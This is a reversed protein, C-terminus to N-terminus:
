KLLKNLAKRKIASIKHLVGEKNGWYLVGRFGEGFFSYTATQIDEDVEYKKMEWWYFYVLFANFMQLISLTFGHLGDKYGKAFYFRSLFEEIANHIAVPLGYHEDKVKEKAESKAYRMMKSLFHDLNEYNYHVMANKETKPLDFGEGKTVPVPHLKREWKVYGKKFFRIQYDPWWRTHEIWKDFIINKRPIRVYDYEMGYKKLSSMLSRTIVEDPDVVLIFESSAKNHLDERILDAFAVNDVKVVKTKYNKVVALQESTMGNNGIIVEEVKEAFSKLSKELLDLNDSGSVVMVATITM